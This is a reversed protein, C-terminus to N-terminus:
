KSKKIMTMLLVSSIAVVSAVLVSDSNKTIVKGFKKMSKRRKRSKVKKSLSLM